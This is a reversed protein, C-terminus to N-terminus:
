VAINENEAKPLTIRFCSGSPTNPNYELKSRNLEALENAIYLGLGTGSASTTFFPEFIQHLQNMPIGAGRDKIKICPSSSLEAVEIIILEKSKRGYKLANSCLNALIQKLHGPDYEISIPQNPCVLEFPSEDLQQELILDNIFEELWSKLRITVPFSQKRRSIQLVSEIVDNVRVTHNKIIEILRQDEQELGTCEALLQSAHSIAGVPNRIEHAISATLRGLSALKSQQVRQDSIRSDELFIMYYPKHTHELHTFRANVVLHENAAVVVSEQELRSKWRLFYQNLNVSLADIKNPMSLIGFLRLASQNMTHIHENKDLIIIASQLQRIIHTNLQEQDALEMSKRAAIADSQEARKALELALLSLAFFLAGMMGTYTYSTTSFTHSIDSYVQEAFLSITSLAAFVLACRGGILLGGAALAVAVLLGMGSSMGGSAHMLLTLVVIDIFVQTQAQTPFKPWRYYVGICALVTLIMYIGSVLSYLDSNSKGLLSPGVHLYYLTTLFTALTVRYLSYVALTKWAQEVPIRFRDSFPCPTILASAEAM